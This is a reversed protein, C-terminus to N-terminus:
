QIAGALGAEAWAIIELLTVGSAGYLPIKRSIGNTMKVEPNLENLKCYIAVRELFTLVLEKPFEKLIAQDSTTFFRAYKLEKELKGAEEKLKGWRIIEEDLTQLNGMIMDSFKTIKEVGSNKLM